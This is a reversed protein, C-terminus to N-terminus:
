HWFKIYRIKSYTSTPYVNALPYNLRDNSHGSYLWGDDTSGTIIVSHSWNDKSKDYFQIVDGLTSNASDDGGVTYGTSRMYNYFNIVRIWAYSGDYWTSSIPIGGAYVAQSVFNNCDNDGWDKYNPNRGKAWKKAYEVALNSNYGSYRKSHMENGKRNIMSKYEQAYNNIDKSINNISNMKDDVINEYDKFEDEFEILISRKKDQKTSGDLDEDLNLMKTIYWNGDINQIELKYNEKSSSNETADTLTFDINYTVKLIYTNNSIKKLNDINVSSQYNSIKLNVKKYWKSKFENTKDMLQLLNSNKIIDKNSKFEGTKMIEYQSSLLKNINNKIKALDENTLNYNTLNVTNITNNSSAKVYTTNGFIFSSSLLTISFILSLIRKSM